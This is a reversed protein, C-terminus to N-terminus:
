RVPEETPWREIEDHLPPDDVLAVDSDFLIACTPCFYQRLVLGDIWASPQGIEVATRDRRLAALKWPTGGVAVLSGCWTCQVGDDTCQLYSNIRQPTRRVTSREGVVEPVDRGLRLGRLELRRARTAAVDPHGGADLVVGYIARAADVSVTAIRIDAAVRDADRALPDGYGGGGMYHAYFADTERIVFEGWQIREREGRTAALSDPLESVNVDRILLGETTSGPYGGSLGISMPLGLGKSTLTLHIEGGTAGHPVIAYEHTVGGRHEGPGGSDVLANRYLYLVPNHLEHTEANAWRSVGNPLEGGIDVGDAGGTAGGAGAFKDTISVIFGEDGAQRGSLMISAHAGDWVASARRHYKPSSDLMRSILLNSLNNCIKIMSVTAVSVPGPRQCNVLTGRPAVLSIPKLMGENWTLDWALLPYIPALVAGWTAWYSNNIGLVSQEGTGTFDFSLSDDRKDLRVEVHHLRDPMDVYQRARWTGDPLEQLRERMLRESLRLMEESVADVLEVGYDGYLRQMREIAVHNAAMQSRIDLAVLDPERVQNLVTEIVDKRPKGREVLKLGRTQFGEHFRNRSNPSFGGPDIAGIDTVHVFNAVFGRLVGEFYAPSIIYVDPPHLAAVYSDNLMFVDGEDIGPDDAFFELIVKVAQAASSLHHLFGVGGLMLGGDARYLSVMMDHGEATTPSGSANELALIAEDVVQNLKHRIVAFTVPDVQTIASV